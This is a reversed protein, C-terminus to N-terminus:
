DLATCTAVYEVEHHTPQAKQAVHETFRVCANLLVLGTVVTLSALLKAPKTRPMWDFFSRTQSRNMM